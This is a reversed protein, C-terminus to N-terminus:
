FHDWNSLSPHQHPFLSAVVAKADGTAKMGSRRMIEEPEEVGVLLQALDYGANLSHRVREGSIPASSVRIKGGDVHIYFTEEPFQIKLTGSWGALASALLRKQLTKRIASVMQRNEEAYTIEVILIPIYVAPVTRFDSKLM